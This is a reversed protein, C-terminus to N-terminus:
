YMRWGSPHFTKPAGDAGPNGGDADVTGNSISNLHPTSASVQMKGLDFGTRSNLKRGENDFDDTVDRHQEVTSEEAETATGRGTAGVVNNWEVASWTRLNVAMCAMDIRLAANKHQLAEQLHTRTAMMEKKIDKTKEIHAKMHDSTHRCADLHVELKEHVFDRIHDNDERQHRNEFQRNLCQLPVEAHRHKKQLNDQSRNAVVIFEETRKLERELHKKAANMDKIHANLVDNSKRTANGCMADVTAMVEMSEANLRLTTQCVKAADAITARTNTVWDNHSHTPQNGNMPTVSGSPPGDQSQPSTPTQPLQPMDLEAIPNKANLKLCTQDIAHAKRKHHLDDVMDRKATELSIICEKIAEINQSLKERGQTYIIHEEM